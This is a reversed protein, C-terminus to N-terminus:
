DRRLEDVIAKVAVDALENMTVPTQSSDTISIRINAYSGSVQVAVQDKNPTWVRNVPGKATAQTAPIQAPATAPDRYLMSDLQAPTSYEDHNKASLLRDMIDGAQVTGLAKWSDAM